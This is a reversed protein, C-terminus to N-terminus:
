SFFPLVKDFIYSLARCLLINPLLEPQNKERTTGNMDQSTNMGTGGMTSNKTNNQDYDRYDRNVKLSHLADNLAATYHAVAASFDRCQFCRLGRVM